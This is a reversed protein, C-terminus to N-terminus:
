INHIFSSESDHLDQHVSVLSVSVFEPLGGVTVGDHKDVMLPMPAWWEQSPQDDLVELPEDEDRGDLSILTEEYEASAVGKECTGDSEGGKEGQCGDAVEPTKLSEGLAVLSENHRWYDGDDVSIVLNDGHREAKVTHWEGDSLPRSELCVARALWGAGSVSACAVGARLQM